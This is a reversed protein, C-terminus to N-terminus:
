PSCEPSWWFSQCSASTTTSYFLVRCLVFCRLVPCAPVDDHSIAVATSRYVAIIWAPWRSLLWRMAVRMPEKCNGGQSTRRKTVKRITM